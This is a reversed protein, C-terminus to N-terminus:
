ADRRTYEDLSAQDVLWCRPNVQDAKVHGQKALNTITRVALGSRRAAQRTTLMVASPGPDAHPGDLPNGVDARTAWWRRSLRDLVEIHAIVIPDVRAGDKLTQQLERVLAPAIAAAVADPIFVGAGAIEVPAGNM